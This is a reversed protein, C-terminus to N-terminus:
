RLRALTARDIVCTQTGTSGALELTVSATPRVAAFDFIFNGTGGSVTRTVPEVATGGRKLTMAKLVNKSGRVPSVGIVVKTQKAVNYSPEPAPRKASVAQYVEYAVQKYPSYWALAFDPNACFGDDYFVCARGAKGCEIAHYYSENNLPIMGKSWAPKITAAISAKISAAPAPAAPSQASVPAAWALWALLWVAATGRAVAARVTCRVLPALPEISLGRLPVRM